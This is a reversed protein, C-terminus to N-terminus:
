KRKKSVKRDETIIEEDHKKAIRIVDIEILDGPEINFAKRIKHDIQCGGNQNVLVTDRM